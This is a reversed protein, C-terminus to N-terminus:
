NDSKSSSRSKGLGTKKAYKSKLKKYQPAVVPHDSDLNYFSRYDDETMNHASNLHRKLMKAQLGCAMCFVHNGDKSVSEEASVVPTSPAPSKANQFKVLDLQQTSQAEPASPAPASDFSEEPFAPQAPQQAKPKRGRKKPAPAAAEEAPQTPATEAAPAPTPEPARAPAPSPAAATEPTSRTEPEAALTGDLVETKLKRIFSIIEDQSRNSDAAFSSGIKSFADYAAQSPSM